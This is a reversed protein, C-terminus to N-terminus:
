PAYGNIQLCQVWLSAAASSDTTALKAVRFGAAGQVFADPMNTLLATTNNTGLGWFAVQFQNTTNIDVFNNTTNPTFTLLRQVTVTVINTSRATNGALAIALALSPNKGNADCYSPVDIWAQGFYVNANTGTVGSTYNTTYTNTLSYVTIGANNTYPVLSDGFNVTANNTILVAQNNGLFNRPNFRAQPSQASATFGVVLLVATAILTKINNM